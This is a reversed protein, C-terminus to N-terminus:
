KLVFDAIAAAAAAQMVPVARRVICPDHRGGVRFTVQQSTKIDLSTQEAAVSATPKIAARFVIPMGSTIGGLIGGHNNTKTKVTEGDLYFPDNHQTGTMLACDFGSGFEIGKVAPVGFVVSAIRNEIGDYIPDGYGAPVGTIVCEVIGGVSDGAKKAWLIKQMMQEAADDNIVPFDKNELAKLKEMDGGVPDIKDDTISHLRSIHAGIKIGRRELIQMLIGGAFCLPATLRGSFNGGGRADNFGAHKIMATYDSHGPRPTNKLSDYDHSRTNTNDIVACIPAGCTVGEVIGSVIKPFDAEKRPTSFRDGPARRKMFAYLADFDIKEGAPVGDLVCGISESHSQGFVTVKINNGFSCSM